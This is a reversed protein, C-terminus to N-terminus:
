KFRWAKDAALRDEMNWNSVFAEILQKCAPDQWYAYDKMARSLPQLSGSIQHDFVKGPRHGKDSMAQDSSTISGGDGGPSNKKDLVDKLKATKAQEQALATHMQQM